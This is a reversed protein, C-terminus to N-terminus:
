ILDFNDRIFFTFSTEKRGEGRRRERERKRVTERGREGATMFFPAHFIAAFKEGADRRISTHHLDVHTQYSHPISQTAIKKVVM